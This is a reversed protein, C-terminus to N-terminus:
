SSSGPRARTPAPPRGSRSILVRKLLEDPVDKKQWGNHSRAKLFLTDLADSTLLTSMLNEKPCLRQRYQVPVAVPFLVTAWFIWLLYHM